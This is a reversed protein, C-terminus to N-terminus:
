WTSHKRRTWSHSQAEEVKANLLNIIMQVNIINERGDRGPIFGRQHHGIKNALIPGLRNAWVRMVLKYDTNLLSIPRFKHPSYSDAEKPLVSIVIQAWSDPQKGTDSMKNGLSALAKAALDPSLKYCEYPLRDTGPSKGKPSDVLVRLMEGAKIPAELAEKEEEELDLTLNKILRDLAHPCVEKHEYLKAYYEVFNQLIVNIDDTRPLDPKDKVNEITMNGIRKRTGRPKALFDKNPKGAMQIWKSETADKRMAMDKAIALDLAKTYQEWCSRTTARYPHKLKM